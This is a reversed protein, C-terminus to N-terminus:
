KSSFARLIDEKMRSVLLAAQFELKGFVFAFDNKQTVGIRTHLFGYSCLVYQLIGGFM